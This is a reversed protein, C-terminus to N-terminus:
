QKTIVRSDFNILKVPLTAIMASLNSLPESTAVIVQHGLVGSQSVRDLFAALSESAADQQKPEDFVLLGLHRTSFKAALELLGNMYAWITRILDSASLDFALNFGEHIPQYIDRNISLANTDISVMGYERVQNRILNELAALKQEDALSLSGEPLSARIEENARWEESLVSLASHLEAVRRAVKKRHQITEQLRLRFEIEAVSPTGEAAILTTNLARITRRLGEVEERQAALEVRARAVDRNTRESVAMFMERQEVLFAMNEEVTMFEARLDSVLSDSINQHCTPCHSQSIGLDRQSGLRKLVLEDRNRRLEVELQVIKDGVRNSESELQELDDLRRGIAFQSATFAQEAMVLQQQLPVLSTANVSSVKPGAASLLEEDAAQAVDFDLWKDAKFVLIRTGGDPPWQSIPLSPFGEVRMNENQVLSSTESVKAKWQQVLEFGRQEVTRRKLRIEYADLKLLFETARQSVEKIRFQTPFRAQIDTWGHKQEVFMLPFIAELYLPVYKGDFTEVEPLQWGFYDALRKHFGAENRAAGSQRVFLDERRYSGGQSLLPGFHVTILNKHRQGIVTRETTWVEGNQNEFELLVSSEIVRVEGTETSLSHTLVHAFPVGQSTSLIAELGLGYIIAQVATSKGMSNSARIVNLGLDFRLEAGFAGEVTVVRISLQRILLKMRIQEVSFFRDCM